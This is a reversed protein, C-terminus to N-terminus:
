AVAQSSQSVSRHLWPPLTRLFGDWYEQTNEDISAFIEHVSFLLSKAIPLYEQARDNLGAYDTEGRDVMRSLVRVGFLHHAEEQHILTNRLRRFPAGRKVLGAELKQLIAEGLGELIIQEALLTEALDKRGIAAELLERYPRMYESVPARDPTHPTLWHIAWQFVIAHSKEQRAQSALFKKMKPNPTLSLQARACDHAMQEGLVMFMLLRALHDHEGLKILM